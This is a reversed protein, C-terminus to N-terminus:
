SLVRWVTWGATAVALTTITTAGALRARPSVSALFRPAHPEVRVRPLLNDRVSRSLPPPEPNAGGPLLTDQTAPLEPVPLRAITATAAPKRLTLPNPHHIKPAAPPAAPRTVPLAAGCRRCAIWGATV